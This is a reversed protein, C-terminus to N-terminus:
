FQVVDRVNKFTRRKFDKGVNGIFATCDLNQFDFVKGIDGGAFQRRQLLGGFVVARLPKCENFDFRVFPLRRKHFKQGFGFLLCQNLAQIDTFVVTQKEHRVCPFSGAIDEPFHTEFRRFNEFFAACQCNRILIKTEQPHDIERQQGVVLFM